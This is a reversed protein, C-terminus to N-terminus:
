IDGWGDVASSMQYGTVTSDFFNAKVNGGKIDSIRELHSFPNKGFDEESFLVPLGVAKLRKNALWKLFIALSSQSIREYRVFIGM